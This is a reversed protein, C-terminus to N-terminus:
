KMTASTRGSRKQHGGRDQEDDQMPLAARPPPAARRADAARRRPGARARARGPQAGDLAGDVARQADVGLVVHGPALVRAGHKREREDRREEEVRQLAQLAGQRQVGGVHLADAGVEREVGGDREHGVRVPLGVRGLEGHAVERLHDAQRHLVEDGGGDAHRHRDREHAAEAAGLAAADAVEPGVEHAAREVHEDRDREDDAHHEDRAADHLREVAGRVHLREGAALLRDRAPREGALLRDLLEARVAAAREVGVRRVGVLVRRRERVQELDPRRRSIGNAIGNRKPRMSPRIRSPMASSAAISRSSPVANPM